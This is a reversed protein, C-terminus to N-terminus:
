ALPLISGCNIADKVCAVAMPSRKSFKEARTAAESMLKERRVVQHAIGLESAGQASLLHGILCSDLAKFTEIIRSLVQTGGAGSILGLTIEQQGIGNGRVGTRGEPPTDVM